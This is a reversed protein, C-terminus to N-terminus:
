GEYAAGGKLWPMKGQYYTDAIHKQQAKNLSALRAYAKAMTEMAERPTKYFACSSGPCKSVRLAKCRNNENLAFCREQM